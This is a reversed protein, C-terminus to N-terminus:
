GTQRTFDSKQLTRIAARFIDGYYHGGDRWGSPHRIRFVHDVTLPGNENDKVAVIKQLCDYGKSDNWKLSSEARNCLLCYREYQSPDKSFPLSLTPLMSGSCLILLNAPKVAKIFRHTWGLCVDVWSQGSPLGGGNSHEFGGRFMPLFNWLLLRNKVFLETVYDASPEEGEPWLAENWHRVDYHNFEVKLNCIVFTSHFGGHDTRYSTELTVVIWHISKEFSWLDVDFV